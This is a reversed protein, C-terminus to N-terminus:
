EEKLFAFGIKIGQEKAAIIIEQPVGFDTKKDVRLILQPPSLLLLLDVVEKTSTLQRTGNKKSELVFSCQGETIEDIALSMTATGPGSGQTTQNTLLDVKTQFENREAASLAIAILIFTFMIVTSLDLFSIPIEFKDDQQSETNETQELETDEVLAWEQNM